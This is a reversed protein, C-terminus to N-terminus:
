GPVPDTLSLDAVIALGPQAIRLDEGPTGPAPPLSRELVVRATRGEFVLLGLENGFHPGTPHHWELSLPAVGAYRGLAHLVRATKTSWGLRFVLRMARPITNHMPSCTIQYVRSEVADSYAAESVYTHHVDGSIV